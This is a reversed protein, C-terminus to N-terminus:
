TDASGKRCCGFRWARLGLLAMASSCAEISKLQVRNCFHILSEHFRAELAQSIRPSCPLPLLRSVISMPLAPRARLAEVGHRVIAPHAIPVRREDVLVKVGLRVELYTASLALLPLLVQWTVPHARGRIM